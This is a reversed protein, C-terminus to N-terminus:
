EVEEHCKKCLTVLKEPSQLIRDRILQAIGGWDIGSVHHVEVYVEEGKKRSQKAGCKQCTYSDMKLRAARERSRMWLLRLINKIQSIPTVPLKKM